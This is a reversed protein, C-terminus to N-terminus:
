AHVPKYFLYFFFLTHTYYNQLQRSSYKLRIHSSINEVLFHKEFDQM